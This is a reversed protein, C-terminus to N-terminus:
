PYTCKSKESFPMYRIYPSSALQASDARKPQSDGNATGHRNSLLARIESADYPGIHRHKQCIASQSFRGNRRIVMEQVPEFEYLCMEFRRNVWAFFGVSEASKGLEKERPRQGADLAARVDYAENCLCSLALDLVFWPGTCDHASGATEGPNEPLDPNTSGERTM